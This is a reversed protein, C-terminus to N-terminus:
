SRWDVLVEPLPGEPPAALDIGTVDQVRARFWLGMESDDTALDGLVAELDDQDTEFWVLMFSGHPTEQLTWTERTIHSRAQLEEFETGRAGITESALTLQANRGPCSRTCGTSCPWTPGGM